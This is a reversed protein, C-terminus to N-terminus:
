RRRAPFSRSTAPSGRSDRPAWRKRARWFVDYAGAPLAEAVHERVLPDHRAEAALQWLNRVRRCPLRHDISALVESAFGAMRLVPAVDVSRGQLAAVVPRATLVSAHTAVSM